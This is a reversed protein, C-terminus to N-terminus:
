IKQICRKTQNITLKNRDKFGKVVIKIHKNNVRTKKVLDKWRVKPKILKMGLALKHFKKNKM